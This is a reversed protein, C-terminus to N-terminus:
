MSLRSSIVSAAGKRLLIVRSRSRVAWRKSRDNDSVNNNQTFDNYIYLAIRAFLLVFTTFYKSMVAPKEKRKVGGSKRKGMQEEDSQKASESNKRM